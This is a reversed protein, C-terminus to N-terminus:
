PHIELLSRPVTGYIRSEKENEHWASVEWTSLHIRNNLIRGKVLALICSTTRNCSVRLEAGYRTRTMNILLHIIYEGYM